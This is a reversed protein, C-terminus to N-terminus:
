SVSTSRHFPVVHAVCLVGIGFAAKALLKSPTDHGLALLQVATPSYKSLLSLCNVSASRHFPALHTSCGVGFGFRAALLQNFETDQGV